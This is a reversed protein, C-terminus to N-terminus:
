SKREISTGSSDCRSPNNHRADSRHTWANNIAVAAIVIRVPEPLKGLGPDRGQRPRRRQQRIQQREDPTGAVIRFRYLKSGIQLRM